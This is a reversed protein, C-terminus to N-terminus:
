RIVLEPNIESYVSGGTGKFVIEASDRRGLAESYKLYPTQNVYVAIASLFRSSRSDSIVRILSNSAPMELSLMMNVGRLENGLNKILSTEILSVKIGEEVPDSSVELAIVRPNNEVFKSISSATGLPIQTEIVLKDGFQGKVKSFKTGPSTYRSVSVKVKEFLGDKDEGLLSFAATANVELIEGKLALEVDSTYIETSFKDPKCGTLVVVLILGLILRM